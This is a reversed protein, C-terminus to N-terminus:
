QGHCLLQMRNIIGFSGKNWLFSADLIDRQVTNLALYVVPSYFCLDQGLNCDLLVLWLLLWIPFSIYCFMLSLIAPTQLHGFTIKLIPPLTYVPSKCTLLFLLGNRAPLSLFTDCTQPIVILKALTSPLYFHTLSLLYFLFVPLLCQQSVINPSVKSTLVKFTM